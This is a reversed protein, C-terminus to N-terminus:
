HQAPATQRRGIVFAGGFKDLVSNWGNEHAEAMHGKLLGSHVLTMVTSEGKREFTVAVMTEEGLTNRSMWSHQIRGPRNIETFRGYHPTGLPQHAPALLYWLGDVKPNFILKDHEHWLTGPVKPDLWADFVESPPAPITREVTIEMTKTLTATM